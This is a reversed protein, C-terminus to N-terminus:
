LSDTNLPFPFSVPESGSEPGPVPLAVPGAVTSPVPAAVAATESGSESAPLAVPPGTAPAAIAEPEFFLDPGTYPTVHILNDPLTWPIQFRPWFVQPVQSIQSEAISQSEVMQFALKGIQFELEEFTPFPRFMFSTVNKAYKKAALATETTRATKSKKNRNTVKVREFQQEILKTQRYLQFTPNFIVSREAEEETEIGDSIMTLPFARQYQLEKEYVAVVAPEPNVRNMMPGSATAIPKGVAVLSLYRIKDLKHNPANEIGQGQISSFAVWAYLTLLIGMNKIGKPAKTCLFDMEMTGQQITDIQEGVSGQQASFEPWSQNIFIDYLARGGPEKTTKRWAEHQIACDVLGYIVGDGDVLLFFRNQSDKDEFRDFEAGAQLPVRVWEAHTQRVENRVVVQAYRVTKAETDITALRESETRRQRDARKSECLSNFRQMLPDSLIQRTERAEKQQESEDPPVVEPPNPPYQARVKKLLEEDYPRRMDLPMCQVIHLDTNQSKNIASLIGQLGQFCMSQRQTVPDTYPSDQHKREMWRTFTTPVSETPREQNVHGQFQNSGVWKRAQDFWSKKGVHSLCTWTSARKITEQVVSKAKDRLFAGVRADITAAAPSGAISAFPSVAFNEFPKLTSWQPVIDPNRALWEAIVPPAQNRISNLCYVEASFMCQMRYNSLQLQKRWNEINRNIVDNNHDEVALPRTDRKWDDYVGTTNQLVQKWKMQQTLQDTIFDGCVWQFLDLWTVVDPPINSAAAFRKRLQQFLFVGYNKDLVDVAEKGEDGFNLNTDLDLSMLLIDQLEKLRQLKTKLAAISETTRNSFNDIEDQRIIYGQRLLQQMSMYESSLTALDLASKQYAEMLQNVEEAHKSQNAWTKTQIQGNQSIRQDLEHSLQELDSAFNPLRTALPNPVARVRKIRSSSSADTEDPQPRKEDATVAPTSPIPTPTDSSTTARRRKSRASAPALSEASPSATTTTPTFVFDVAGAQEKNDTNMVIDDDDNADSVTAPTPTSM